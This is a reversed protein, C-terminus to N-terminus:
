QTEQTGNVKSCLKTWFMGINQGSQLFLNNHRTRALAHAFTVRLDHYMLSSLKITCWSSGVSQHLLWDGPDEAKRVPTSVLFIRFSFWFFTSSLEAISYFLKTFNNAGIPGNLHCWQRWRQRWKFPAMPSLSPPVCHRQCWYSRNPAIPSLAMESIQAM